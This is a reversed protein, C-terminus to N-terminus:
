VNERVFFFHVRSLDYKIDVIIQKRQGRGTRKALVYFLMPERSHLIPRDSSFQKHAIRNNKKNKNKLEVFRSNRTQIRVGEAHRAVAHIYM